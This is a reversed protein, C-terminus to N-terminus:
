NKNQENDEDESKPNTFGMDRMVLEVTMNRIYDSCHNCLPTPEADPIRLMVTAKNTCCTCVVTEQDM